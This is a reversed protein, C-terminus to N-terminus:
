YALASSSIWRNCYHVLLDWTTMAAQSLSVRSMCYLLVLYSSCSCWVRIVWITFWCDIWFHPQAGELIQEAGLARRRRKPHIKMGCRSPCVTFCPRPLGDDLRQCSGMQFLFGIWRISKHTSSIWNSLWCPCFPTNSCLFFLCHLSQGAINSLWFCMFSSICPEKSFYFFFTVLFDSSFSHRGLLVPSFNGRHYAVFLHWFVQLM